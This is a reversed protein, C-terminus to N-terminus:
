DQICKGLDWGGPTRARGLAKTSQMLLVKHLSGGPQLTERHLSPGFGSFWFASHFRLGVSAATLAPHLFCSSAAQKEQFSHYTVFAPEPM